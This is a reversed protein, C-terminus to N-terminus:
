FICLIGFTFYLNHLIAWKLIYHINYKIHNFNYKIAVSLHKELRSLYKHYLNLVFLFFGLKILVMKSMQGLYQRERLRHGWTESLPFQRQYIGSRDSSLSYKVLYSFMATPVCKIFNLTHIDLFRCELLSVVFAAILFQM